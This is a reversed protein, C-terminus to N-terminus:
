LAPSVQFGPPTVADLVRELHLMVGRPHQIILRHRPYSRLKLPSQQTGPLFSPTLLDDCGTLDNDTSDLMDMVAASSEVAMLLALDEEVGFM